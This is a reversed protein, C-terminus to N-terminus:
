SFPLPILGSNTKDLAEVTSIESRMLDNKYFLNYSDLKLSIDEFASPTDNISRTTSVSNTILADFYLVNNKNLIQKANLKASSYTNSKDDLKENYMNVSLNGKPNKYNIVTNLTYKDFYSLNNNLIIKPKIVM